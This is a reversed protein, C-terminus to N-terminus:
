FIYSVGYHDVKNQLPFKEVVLYLQSSFRIFLSTIVDNHAGVFIRHIVLYQEQPQAISFKEVILGLINLLLGNEPFTFVWFKHLDLRRISMLAFYSFNNIRFYIFTLQVHQDRRRCIPRDFHPLWSVNFGIWAELRDDTM